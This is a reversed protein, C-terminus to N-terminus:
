VMQVRFFRSLGAGTKTPDMLVEGEIDLTGFDKDILGLSKTAGLQVRFLDVTSPNANDAENVGAYSMELVPAATTLAEILDYGGFAYDIVLDDGDSIAAANDFIFVGEPRVEYNGAPAILTAGKNVAVSTPKIHALRILGGKYAKHPEDAVTDGAIASATGFVARAMNVVNLDQLKASMAVSDVRKVQARTGGGARSYDTQKKTDETIDIKLEQIGGISQLPAAAGALRAYVVGANLVPRFIRSTTLM